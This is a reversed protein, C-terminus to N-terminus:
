VWMSQPKDIKNRRNKAAISMKLRTEASVIKGIHKARIKAKKEESCAIGKLGKSIAEKHADNQKRDKNIQNGIKSESMKRKTEESPKHGLHSISLKLRTEDSVKVGARNRGAKCINYGVESNISNLKDIWYQERELLWDTYEIVVFLFNQEGYRNWASQLHRNHHKNKNLALKHLRWRDKFDLASGIYIKDNAINVIAYIGFIM